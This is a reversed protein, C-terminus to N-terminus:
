RKFIVGFIATLVGIQGIWFIFLWKVLESRLNAIDEKLESRLNAITEKFETKTVLFEKQNEKYEELSKEIAEVVVKAQKEDLGSKLEEFIKLTNVIAM